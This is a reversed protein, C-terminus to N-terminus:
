SAKKIRKLRFLDERELEELRFRIFKADARMSPIVKFELANVRRKTKDIEVLLKRLTNEIQAVIIINKILTEYSEAADDIHESTGIIGYGREHFAKIEFDSKVEPVVVGMVNRTKVEILAEQKLAMAASKVAITGDLARALEITQKARMFSGSMASKTKKAEELVTFFERILGDRKRKLLSHGSVALKIQRNLKILESRTPKIKPM